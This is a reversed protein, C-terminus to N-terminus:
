SVNGNYKGKRPPTEKLIEENIGYLHTARGYIEDRTEFSVGGLKTQLILTLGQEFREAKLAESPVIKHAFRLLEFFKSHYENFSITGMSLNTFEM